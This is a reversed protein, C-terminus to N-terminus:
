RGNERGIAKYEIENIVGHGTIEFQISTGRQKEQPVKVDFVDKGIISSSSVKNGDIYIDVVFSGNAKIYVNNYMKIITADGETLEPSKYHLALPLGSFMEFLSGGSIVYISDDDSVINDVQQFSFSFTKLVFNDSYRFDACLTNGNTLVLYYQEDFVAASVADLTVRGLKDKSIVTVTGNYYTYLGELGLWILRNKAVKITSFNICGYENSLRLLRFSTPDGTLLFVSSRLFILVGEAVLAIGTVDKSFPLVNSGPWYDPFGEQSYYVNSGKAGFFTGFSETLFRLGALPPANGESALIDGLASLAPIDDNYATTTSPLEILLTAETTGQGIRYLRIKDANGDVPTSFGTLDVTKTAVITLEDSLPSPASEIGESSDYYTYVYQVTGAILSGTTGEVSTLAVTPAVLGISKTVGNVVKGGRNGAETWYLNNKYETYDRALSSSYWINNFKHAWTSVNTELNLLDLTSTLSVKENDINNYVLAENPAILTPDLRNSLGGSFDNLKM